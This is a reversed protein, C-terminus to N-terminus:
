AALVARLKALARLELASIAQRSCGRARAVDAQTSGEDTYLDLMVAREAATLANLEEAVEASHLRLVASEEPSPGAATLVRDSIAGQCESSGQAADHLVDWSVAGAAWAASEASTHFMAGKVGRFAFTLLRTSRQLDYAAIAECLALVGEQALDEHPVGTRAIAAAYASIRPLADVILRNRASVDGAQAAAICAHEEEATMKGVAWWGKEGWNYHGGVGIDLTM